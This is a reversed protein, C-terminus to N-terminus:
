VSAEKPEDERDQRDIDTYNVSYFLQKHHSNSGFHVTLKMQIVCM